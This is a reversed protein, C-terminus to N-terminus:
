FSRGQQSSFSKNFIQSSFAVKKKNRQFRNRINIYELSM